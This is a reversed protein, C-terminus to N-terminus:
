GKLKVDPGKLDDIFDRGEKKIEVIRKKLRITRLLQSVSIKEAGRRKGEIPKIKV